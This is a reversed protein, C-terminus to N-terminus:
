IIAPFFLSFPFLVIILSSHLIHILFLRRRLETWLDNGRKRERERGRGGERRKRRTKRKM